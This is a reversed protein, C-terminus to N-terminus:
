STDIIRDPKETQWFIMLDSRLCLNWKPRVVKGPKVKTNKKQCGRNLNKVCFSSWYHLCMSINGQSGQQDNLPAMLEDSIVSSWYGSVQSHNTGTNHKGYLPQHQLMSVSWGPSVFVPELFVDASQPKLQKILNEAVHCIGSQLLVLTDAACFNGLM